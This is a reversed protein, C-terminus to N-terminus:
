LRFPWPPAYLLRVGSWGGTLEEEQAQNGRATERDAPAWNWDGALGLWGARGVRLWCELGLGLGLWLTTGHGSAAVGAEPVAARWSERIWAWSVRPGGRLKWNPGLRQEYAIELSLPVFTMAVDSERVFGAAPAATSRWAAQIALTPSLGRWARSQLTVAPAPPAGYLADLREDSFRLMGVGIAAPGVQLGM